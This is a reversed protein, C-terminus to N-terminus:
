SSREQILAALFRSTGTAPSLVNITTKRSIFTGTLESVALKLFVLRAIAKREM